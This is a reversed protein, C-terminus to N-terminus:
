VRSFCKANKETKILLFAACPQPRMSRWDGITPIASIADQRMNSEILPAVSIFFHKIITKAIANISKEAHPLIAFPSRCFVFASIFCCCIASAEHAPQLM